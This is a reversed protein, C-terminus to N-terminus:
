RCINVFLETLVLDNVMGTSKLKRDANLLDTQILFLKKRDMKLAQSKYDNVFFPHVGLKGALERDSINQNLNEHCILLMKFHRSIMFLLRVIPEGSILLKDLLYLSQSLNRKGIAGALDFVTKTLISGCIEEVDQTTINKRPLIYIAIKELTNVVSMLNVGLIDALSSSAQPEISLGMNKAENSIWAPLQNDYPPKLEEIWGKKSVQQWAKLRKDIKQATLVLITSSTPQAFYLRLRDLDDKSLQHAESLIVFRYEAMMPLQMCTDIVEDIKDKGALFRHYNFDKFDVEVFSKELRQVERQLLYNDTSVLIHVLKDM